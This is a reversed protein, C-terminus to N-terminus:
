KDRLKKELEEIKEIKALTEDIPNKDEGFVGLSYRERIKEEAEKYVRDVRDAQWKLFYCLSEVGLNFHLSEIGFSSMKDKNREIFDVMNGLSTKAKQLETVFEETKM